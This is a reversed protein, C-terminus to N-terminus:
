HEKEARLEAEKKELRQKQQLREARAALEAHESQLHMKLSIISSRRSSANSVSDNPVIDDMTSATGMTADNGTVENQDVWKSVNNQFILLPVVKPAFWECQDRKVDDKPLLSKVSDNLENFDQYAKLFEIKRKSKVKELNCADKMLDTIENKKRTLVGLKASRSAKVQTLREPYATDIDEELSRLKSRRLLSRMRQMSANRNTQVKM